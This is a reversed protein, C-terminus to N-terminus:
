GRLRAARTLLYNQEAVSTALAAAREFHAIAGGGRDGARELLHARVVHLRHHGALGGTRPLRTSARSGRRPATFWRPRSRTTSPSWRITPSASSCAMSAWSRRGTPPRRIRRRTTSRRSRPRCSTPAWPALRPLTATLLAVGEAIAERDRLTRDQEDLPVPEGAPGTRASRRARRPRLMLALLGGVECDDLVLRHLMRTLRLAESSLDSRHVEPGSSATYGENFILYLVHLVAGLRQASDEPTPMQFPVGSAKISQKARSIRQAMTAEPVMVARAIQATTLGGVARLTLAIASAAGSALLTPHCCMFLLDLTDDRPTAVDDEDAALAIQEELLILSVVLAERYRRAAEARAGLRRRALVRGPDALRPPERLVGALPRVTVAAILAEQM